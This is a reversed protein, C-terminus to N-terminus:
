SPCPCSMHSRPEPWTPSTPTCPFVRRRPVLRPSPWASVWSPMPVSTPRTPPATSSSSSSTSRPRTRSTSTRRSSPRDLSRTSTRSPRSSVQRAIGTLGTSGCRGRGTTQPTRREGKGLWKSKDGDRLECAEHQGASGDANGMNTLSRIEPGSEPRRVPPPERPSLPVTCAPRPSLTWRSPPTAALTTSPVLTSRPSLCPSLSPRTDTSTFLAAPLLDQLLRHSPPPILYLSFATPSAGLLPGAEGVVWFSRASRCALCPAPHGM